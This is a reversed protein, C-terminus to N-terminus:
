MRRLLGGVSPLWGQRRRALGGAGRGWLATAPRRGCGSRLSGARAAKLRLCGPGSKASSNVWAAVNPAWLVSAEGAVTQRRPPRERCDAAGVVRRRPPVSALAKATNLPGPGGPREMVPCVLPKPPPRSTGPTRATSALPRPAEPPALHGGPVSPQSFVAPPRRRAAARASTGAGEQFSPAGGPTAPPPRLGAPGEDLQNGEADSFVGASMAHRGCPVRM